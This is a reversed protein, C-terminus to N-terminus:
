PTWTQPSGVKVWYGWKPALETLDNAYGPAATDYIKWPDATDYPYFANVMSFDTVGHTNLAGPLVQVTAEPYGVLNWGSLLTISPSVPASGSVTLTAAESMQIWFGMTEDLATLTDQTQEVKDYKLWIGNVADWAYVLSYKGEISALVVSIATNSPHLDLSVLNWGAQLSIDHTILSFNATVTRAETMALTCTGTGNCGGGAWGVFTADPSPAATLTVNTGHDFSASCTSGCNIGAPESTVVGTGAGTKNVTLAYRNIAPTYNQNIHGSVVGTYEIYAPNFTYGALTPTVTGSWNYPLTLTYTGGDNVTITKAVGDTYSLTVGSIGASGSITVKPTFNQASLNETVATPYDRTAPDFIVGSLSPTVAGTWGYPVTFAYTGGETSLATKADDDMYSLTVGSAGTSGSITVRPTFNQGSLSATVGTTYARSSPDFSFSGKAPTVTGTWGYPVTFTYAGDSGSTAAQPNETTGYNLTVEGIGTSGSITVLPTFDQNTLNATVPSSAYSRSAPNFSYGEKGPTIAGMWGYPVTVTYSSGTQSVVGGSSATLSVGSIGTSGSITLSTLAYAVSVTAPNDPMKLSNTAETSNDNSTGSWGTIYSGESPAASFSISAGAVYYGNTSCAESKAPAAAPDSGQGAGTHTLTLLYCSVVKGSVPLDQQVASSSSHTIYGPYTEASSALLRVYITTTISGSSGPSLVLGTTFTGGSTQSIQYGPPTALTLDGILNSGTLVYSQEASPVNPTTTFATLSGSTTITPTLVTGRAIVSVDTAGASTHTINGNCTGAAGHKLRVYITVGGAQMVDSASVSLGASHFNDDVNTRSIEYGAPPTISVPATLNSGSVTYSQVASPQGIRGTFGELVTVSTTIGPPLVTATFDQGLMNATVPTSYVRSSPDFSYGAKSPTVTGTWGHPVTLTYNSGDQSVSAGNTVTLTAGEVGLSGKITYTNLTASFNQGTLPGMVPSSTYSLSAPSFTYGTMAPTITGAWGHSVSISYAGGTGSTVATGGTFSVTAGEVGVSGSITYTNLTATFNQGTQSVKLNTYSNKEPSFTYGAKSPTVDGSWNYRVAISYSGDSGSTVTGGPYTLTVGDTGANGSISLSAATVSEFVESAANYNGSGAQNYSVTCTGSGGTMTIDATNEGSGSCAGSSTIVVPSGSGGGSAAVSFTYGDVAESPAHSTVTIAQAAKNVTLEGKAYAIEYNALGVGTAESPVIDYPSGSVEALAAAGASTLTVGTVTDPSVLGSTTFESGTFTVTEGYAKSIDGATVTLAAKNIVLTGASADNLSNYNTSDTPAFDATVAYSGAATATAAGGYQVDSVTGAVSGTVAAAHTVGDYTFPGGTAALTPTAKDIVLSGTAAAGSLSKYHTTDTPTFDATITYTGANVATGTGNYKINSVTGAVSATVTATHSEGDYTYPGGSATLTPVTKALYNVAASHDSAPMSVTNAAATSNNDTTGTWSSIYYDEAASAGSLSITAGEV